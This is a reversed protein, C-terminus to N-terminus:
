VVSSLYVRAMAELGASDVNLLGEAQQVLRQWSFEDPKTM